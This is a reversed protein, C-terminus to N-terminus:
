PLMALAASVVIPPPSVFEAVLAQAVVQGGYLGGWPYRPGAGVWTDPGHDALSLIEALQVEDTAWSM